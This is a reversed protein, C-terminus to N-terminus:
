NILKNVIDAHKLGHHFLLKEKLFHSFHRFHDLIGLTLFM